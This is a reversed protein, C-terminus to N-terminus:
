ENFVLYPNLLHEPDYERNNKYIANLLSRKNKKAIKLKIFSFDPNLEYAIFDKLCLCDYFCVFLGKQYVIRDNTPIDIIALKPTLDDLFDRISYHSFSYFTGDAKELSYLKGFVFYTSDVIRMKFDNVLFSRAKWKNTILKELDSEINLCYVSSDNDKFENIKSSNSLSFSTAIIIDKTFDIFPSYSCSHQIFAYKSYRNMSHDRILRDFKGELGTDSLISHYYDDDFLINGKHNRFISPSIRYNFDTQGRFISHNNYLSLEEINKIHIIRKDYRKDLRKYFGIVVALKLLYYLRTKNKLYHESELYHKFDDIYFVTDRYSKLQIYTEYFEYFSDRAIMLLELNDKYNIVEFLTEITYENYPAFISAIKLYDIDDIYQEVAKKFATEIKNNSDNFTNM